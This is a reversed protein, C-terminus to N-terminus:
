HVYMRARTFVICFGFLPLGRRAFLTLRPQPLNTSRVAPPAQGAGVAGRQGKVRHILVHLIRYKKYRM